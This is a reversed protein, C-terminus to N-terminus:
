PNNSAVLGSRVCLFEKGSVLSKINRQMRCTCTNHDITVSGLATNCAVGCSMHHSICLHTYVHIYHIVSIETVATNMLAHVHLVDTLECRTSHKHVMSLFIINYIPHGHRYTSCVTHIYLTCQLNHLVPDFCSLFSAIFLCWM